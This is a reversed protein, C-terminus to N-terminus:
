EKNLGVDVGAAISHAAGESLAPAEEMTTWRQLGGPAQAAAKEQQTVTGAEWSTERSQEQGGVTEEGCLLWLSKKPFFFFCFFM